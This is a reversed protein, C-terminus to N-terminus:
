SKVDQSSHNNKRFIKLQSFLITFKVHEQEVFNKKKKKAFIDVKILIKFTKSKTFM